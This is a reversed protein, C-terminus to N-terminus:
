KRLRGFSEVLDIVYKGEALKFILPDKKFLHVLDLEYKGPQKVNIAEIDLFVPEDEDVKSGVIDLIDREIQQKDDETLNLADAKKRAEELKAAKVFFFLRAGCPCGKLIQDAGDEYFTNCRVCQHPM